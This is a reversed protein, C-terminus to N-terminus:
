RLLWVGGLAPPLSVAQGAPTKRVALKVGACRTAFAQADGAGLGYGAIAPAPPADGLLKTVTERKGIFIRGRGTDLRM